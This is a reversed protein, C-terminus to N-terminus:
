REMEGSPRPSDSPRATAALAQASQKRQLEAELEVV